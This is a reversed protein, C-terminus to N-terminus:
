NNVIKISEELRYDRIPVLPQACLKKIFYWVFVGGVGVMTSLDMWSVRTSEGHLNPMVIWYLDVWHIFLLWISILMLVKLNRKSARIILVFFPIVFHGFIILLSIFTWQGHWRNAFWITEEPINAYWILFYQSFAIYAWFVVFTFILKGLDHYHEFTIVEVL